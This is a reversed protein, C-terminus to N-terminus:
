VTYLVVPNYVRFFPFSPIFVKNKLALFLPSLLINCVLFFWKRCMTFNQFYIKTPQLLLISIMM